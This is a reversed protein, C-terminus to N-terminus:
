FIYALWSVSLDKEEMGPVDVQVTIEDKGEILDFAPTWMKERAWFPDEGWFSEMLRDMQTRLTALEAMPNWKVLAM